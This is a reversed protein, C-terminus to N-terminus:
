APARGLERQALARLLVAVKDDELLARRRISYLPLARTPISRIAVLGERSAAIVDPLVSLVQGGLIAEIRLALSATM